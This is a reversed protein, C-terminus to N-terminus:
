KDLVAVHRKEGVSGELSLDSLWFGCTRSMKFYIYKKGKGERWKELAVELVLCENSNIKFISIVLSTICM